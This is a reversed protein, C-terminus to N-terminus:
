LTKILENVFARFAIPASVMGCVDSAHSEALSGRLRRVGTPLPFLYTSGTM